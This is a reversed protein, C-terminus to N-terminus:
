NAIAMSDQAGGGGGRAAWRCVHEARIALDNAADSRGMSPCGPQFVSAPSLGMPLPPRREKCVGPSEAQARVHRCAAWPPVSSLSTGVALAIGRRVPSSFLISRSHLRRQTVDSPTGAARVPLPHM